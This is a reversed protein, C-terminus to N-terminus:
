VYSSDTSETRETFVMHHYGPTSHFLSQPEQMSKASTATDLHVEYRQMLAAFFIFMEM